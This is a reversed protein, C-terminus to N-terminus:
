QQARIEAAAGAIAGITGAPDAYFAETLQDEATAPEEYFAEYEYEDEFESM